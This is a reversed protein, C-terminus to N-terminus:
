NKHTLIAIPNVHAVDAVSFTVRCSALNVRSCLANLKARRTWPDVSDLRPLHNARANRRGDDGVPRRGVGKM